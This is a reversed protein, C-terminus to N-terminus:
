EFPTSQMAMSLNQLRCVLGHSYRVVTPHTSFHFQHYLLDLSQFFLMDIGVLQEIVSFHHHNGTYFVSIKRLFLGTLPIRASNSWTTDVLSM